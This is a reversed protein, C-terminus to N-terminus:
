KSSQILDNGKTMMNDITTDVDQDGLLYKDCEELVIKEMDDTYSPVMMDVNDEWEPNNFVKELAEIDVYQQDSILGKLAEAKNLDKTNPVSVGRLALGETTYWRLFKYAEDVHKSTRPISYYHAETYTRGAEGSDSWRPLPAFTTVFDHPFKSQDSLEPIMWSGTPMMAVEENFFKSRYNMNMAKVDTFPTSAGDESELKYRYQLWEKWYPEDFTLVGEEKYYPSGMKVSTAAMFDYNGWTHFYSGYRKSAGEGVTLKKAYEAYDDWTWDLPPVELGAEDLMNKNLLVFWTKWDGSIGYQKGDVVPSFSYIDDPKVGEAEFLPGLDVYSGAGARRAHQMYSGSMTIDLEEDGLIMLDVKKDYERTNQDGYYEFKVTVNPNIKKYEEAAREDEEKFNSQWSAFRLEVNGDSSGGKADKKTDSESKGCAGLAMSLLMMGSLLAILKRKM